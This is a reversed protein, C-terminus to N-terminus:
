HCQPEDLLLGMASAKEDRAITFGGQQGQQLLRLRTTVPHLLQGFRTRIAMAICCYVPMLVIIKIPQTYTASGGTGPKVGRTVFPVTQGPKIKASLPLVCCCLSM